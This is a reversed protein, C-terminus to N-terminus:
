VSLDVGPELAVFLAEKSGAPATEGSALVRAVLVGKQHPDPTVAVRIAQHQVYRPERDASQAPPAAPMRSSARAPQVVPSLFGQPTSRRAPVPPPPKISPRDGRVHPGSSRAPVDSVRGSDDPDQAGTRPPEPTTQVSPQVSALPGSKMLAEAAREFVEDSNAENTSKFLESVPVPQVLTPRSALEASSPSSPERRTIPTAPVPLPPPAIQVAPPPESRSAFRARLDAAAKALEVARVDHGEESATEAARRLWRLAEPYDGKTWMASATELAWRIDDSDSTQAHLFAGEAGASTM